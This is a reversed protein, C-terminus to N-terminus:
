NHAQHIKDFQRGFHKLQIHPFKAKVKRHFLTLFGPQEVLSQYVQFHCSNAWNRDGRRKFHEQLTEIFAKTTDQLAKKKKRRGRLCFLHAVYM